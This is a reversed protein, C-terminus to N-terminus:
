LGAAPVARHRTLCRQSSPRRRRAVDGGQARRYGRSRIGTGNASWYGFWSPDPDDPLPRKDTFIQRYYHYAEFLFVVLGPQQIVKRPSIHADSDTVSNPLCHGNPWDKSNNAQREKFLKEAWPQMQIEIGDAALNGLYKGDPARWIGSFDPTGDALKPAPARLNPKGEATRPIRPDPYDIWQASATVSFVVLCFGILLGQVVRMTSGRSSRM